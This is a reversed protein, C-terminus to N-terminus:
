MVLRVIATHFVLMAEPVCNMRPANSAPLLPWPPDLLRRVTPPDLKEDHRSLEDGLEVGTAGGLVPVGVAVAVAVSLLVEGPPATFVTVAM